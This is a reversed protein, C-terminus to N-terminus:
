SVPSLNESGPCDELRRANAARKHRYVATMWTGRNLWHHFLLGRNWTSSAERAPKPWCVPASWNALLQSGILPKGLIAQKPAACVPSTGSPAQGAPWEARHEKCTGTEEAARVGPCPGKPTHLLWPVPPCAPLFCAGPYPSVEVGKWGAGGKRDDRM